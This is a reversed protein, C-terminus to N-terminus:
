GRDDGPAATVRADQETKPRRGPRRPKAYFEEIMGRLYVPGYGAIEAVPKPHEPHEHALQRARIRSVGGIEGAGAYGVLDPIVPQHARHTFGDHDVIDLAVIQVRRQGVDRTATTIVGLAVDTAQRITSAEVAISTSWRGLDADPSMVLGGEHDVLADILQEVTAQDDPGPDATWEFIAHWTTM